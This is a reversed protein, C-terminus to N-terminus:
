RPGPRVSLDEVVADPPLQIALRVTAAISEPRIYIDGDYEDDAGRFIERQMDTDVRGPYISTVRVGHETEEERLADCFARVAFKSASYLGGGAKSTFGSGSNIVVVHGRATRLIPLLLRTLDAVAIVNLEMIRRWAARDFEIAAGHGTVGASHVVVDLSDIGSVADLVADEDALDAVFPEASRLGTCVRDVASANRGGILLHHDGALDEAIARGIGRTGGTILVTKISNAM